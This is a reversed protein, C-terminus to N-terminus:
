FSRKSAESDIVELLKVVRKGKLQKETESITNRAECIPDLIIGNEEDVIVPYVKCGSPRNIYVSCRRNIRDYFVCYGERNKLTVYGHKGYHAFHNKQYGREELRHIDKKSLLM